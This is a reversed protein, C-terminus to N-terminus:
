LEKPRVVAEIKWPRTKLADTWTRGAGVLLAANATTMRTSTGSLEEVLDEWGPNHGLVMVTSVAAGVKELLDYVADPGALYLEDTFTVDVPAFAGKMRAWTERTRESDSSLVVDPIWGLTALHEAVRPADRRGRKNLPREHDTPADTDWASKAHRVVILRREM